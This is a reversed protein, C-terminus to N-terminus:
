TPLNRNVRDEYEDPLKPTSHWNQLVLERLVDAVSRLQRHATTELEQVLKEPLELTVTLTM